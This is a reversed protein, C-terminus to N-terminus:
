IQVKLFHLENKSDWKFQYNNDLKIPEGYQKETRYILETGIKYTSGHRFDFDKTDESYSDQNFYHHHNTAMIFYCIDIKNLKYTELNKIDKFVDYRNNPERHNIKKLFKLEIAAKCYKDGNQFNLMIDVKAKGSKSKPFPIESDIYNELEITFLDNKDFEYLSGLTKIIFGLQLQFSAESEINISKRSYKEIFLFYSTEIIQHLRENFEMLRTGKLLSNNGMGSMM